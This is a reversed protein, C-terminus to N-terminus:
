GKTRAKFFFALVVTNGRYDALRVSDRLRGYRSAGGVVFDPALDGVAPGGPPAAPAPSPQAALPTTIAVLVATLALRRLAARHPM